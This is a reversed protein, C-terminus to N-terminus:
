GKLDRHGHCLGRALNNREREICSDIFKRPLSADRYDNAHFVEAAKELYAASFVNWIENDTDLDTLPLPYYPDNEFFALGLQSILASPGELEVREEWTSCLNFDLVWLPTTRRPFNVRILSEIDTHPTMALQEKATLNLCASVGRTYTVDGESGLVFEIDYADAQAVWHIMALAEGIAFAFSKMPLKLDIIQDLCLNFNRLTFNPTPLANATRRRGLYVRALCDRNTPNAAVSPRLAAPCYANILAHRAVKPLPLIRETILVVAPLSLSHHAQSLFPLNEDWWQQNTKTVYSM